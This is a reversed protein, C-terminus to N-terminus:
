GQRLEQGVLILLIVILIMGLIVIPIVILLVITIRIKWDLLTDRFVGDFDADAKQLRWSRLVPHNSQNMDRPLKKRCRTYSDQLALLICEYRSVHMYCIYMHTCRYAIRM